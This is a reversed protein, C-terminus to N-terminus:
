HRTAAQEMHRQLSEALGGPRPRTFIDNVEKATLKRRPASFAKVPDATTLGRSDKIEEEVLRFIADPTGNFWEGKRKRKAAKELLRYEVAAANERSTCKIAKYLYCDYPNSANLSGLRSNVNDSLGIKCFPLEKGDNLLGIFYV